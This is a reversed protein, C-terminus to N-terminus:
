FYGKFSKWFDVFDDYMQSPKQKGTASKATKNVPESIKVRPRKTDQDKTDPKLKHNNDEQQGTAKSDEDNGQQRSQEIQQKQREQRRTETTNKKNNGGGDKNDRSGNSEKNDKGQKNDKNSM